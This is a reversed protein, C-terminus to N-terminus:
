VSYRNKASRELRKAEDHFIFGITENYDLLEKWQRGISTQAAENTATKTWLGIKEQKGRVNVVAGCIEDGYDFQEGIMALLTYLWLTDAKGRTCNVSWKGGNACIPDEWKPEIKHKFCYLDAGPALKSPPHINNYLSWFEQVTSFTYILRLSSEWAAQKNKAAPSAFWLTWSNELPHPILPTAPSRLLNGSGSEDGEDEEEVIEGEEVEEEEEENRSQREMERKEREEEPTSSSPSSARHISGNSEEAAAM